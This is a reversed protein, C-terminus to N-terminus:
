TNDPVQITGPVGRLYWKSRVPCIVRSVHSHQEFKHAFAIAELLWTAMQGEATRNNSQLLEEFGIRIRV